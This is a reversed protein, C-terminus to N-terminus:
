GAVLRIFSAVTAAACVLAAIAWAATHGRGSRLELEVLIGLVIGAAFGGAHAINDAGVVLGFVFGYAAWHLFFDRLMRGAGGGRRHGYAAGFGILGFLAGSAGAITVPAPGRVAVDIIGSAALVVVYVTFFRLSGIEKELFPGVQSLSLMNFMFHLPGIHLFGSTILQHWAGRAAEAPVLAGLARLVETDPFFTELPGFLFVGVGLVATCALLLLAAVPHWEPTVLGLVRQIQAARASVIRAGCYPCASGPEDVLARCAACQRRTAPIRLPPSVAVSVRERQAEARRREWEYLRWRLRTTDIGLRDLLQLWDM